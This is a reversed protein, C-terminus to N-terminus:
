VDNGIITSYLDQAQNQRNTRIVRITGTGTVPVEIAPEFNVQKTDGEAGNLFGVAVTALSALAGVQIEFKCKGSASVIVSKLFMTTGTVTYDHNSTGASAVAVAQDFDHVEVGSVATDTLKVFIPNTESNANADKSIKLATLSQSAIDVQGFGSGDISWTDTGDSIAVNDQTASLDRIDLDTASVTVAGDVTISTGGDDITISNGGDQINVASAGAGNDVTVDSSNADVTVTGNINSTIYGDVDIGLRNADTTPDAIVMLQKRDLTMRAIGIDGEDVSDPSTDDALFGTAGVVDSAISFASDDAYENSVSISPISLVDVQLNGDADVLVPAIGGGSVNVTGYLLINDQSADLNRIDLDTASVTVAGDVTISGGGDAITVTNDVNVDLAGATVDIATTGNSLQVFFANDVANLDNNKSIVSPFTGDAM